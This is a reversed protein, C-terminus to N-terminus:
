VEQGKVIRMEGTKPDEEFFEHAEDGDSDRHLGPAPQEQVAPAAAAEVVPRPREGSAPREPAPEARPEPAGSKPPAKSSACGM